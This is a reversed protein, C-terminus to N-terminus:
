LNYSKLSEKVNIYDTISIEFHDCFWYRQNSAIYEILQEKNGLLFDRSSSCGGSDFNSGALVLINKGETINTKKFFCELIKKRKESNSKIKNEHEKALDENEFIKGDITRFIVQM